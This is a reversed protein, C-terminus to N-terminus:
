PVPGQLDQKGVPTVQATMTGGPQDLRPDRLVSFLYRSMGKTVNLTGVELLELKPSVGVRTAKLKEVEVLELKPSYIDRTGKLQKGILSVAQYSQSKASRSGKDGYSAVIRRGTM